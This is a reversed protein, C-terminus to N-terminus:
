TCPRSTPTTAAFIDINNDIWGNDPTDGPVINGAHSSFIATAGDDTIAALAAVATIVTRARSPNGSGSSGRWGARRPGCM